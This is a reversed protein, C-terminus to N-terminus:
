RPPNRCGLRLSADVSLKIPRDPKFYALVPVSTAIEKLQQLSQEHEHHWQWAADKELLARLTTFSAM